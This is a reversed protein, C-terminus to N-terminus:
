LTLRPVMIQFGVITEAVIPWESSALKLKSAETTECRRNTELGQLAKSFAM